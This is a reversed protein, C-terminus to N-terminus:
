PNNAGSIKMGKKRMKAKARAIAAAKLKRVRVVVTASHPPEPRWRQVIINRRLTGRIRRASPVALLPARARADNRWVTAGIKLGKDLVDKQVIKAPLAKLAAEIERLGRIKVSIM